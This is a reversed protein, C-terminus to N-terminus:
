AKQWQDYPTPDDRMQRILEPWAPPVYGTAERFRTSDLSRDCNFSDDPAIDVKTAFADNVLNLLDYKNIPDASVHWLGSLTRQTEAIHALIKALENTTFGSFVARRFGKVRGGRQSLFWEVLGHRTSLERGIMSTRVTLAHPASVEGLLKSRGYLDTADSPDAETYCGRSGSFVCDTSLHILRAGRTGCLAALRHPLMANVGIGVIPDEAGPLQKVVGVANFVVDPRAADFARAVDGPLTVDVNPILANPEFIGFRAYDEPAGRVTGFTEMRSGLEQWLKHGLM